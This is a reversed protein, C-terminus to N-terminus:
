VMEQSGDFRARSSDGCCDKGAFFLAAALFVCAAAVVKAQAPEVLCGSMCFIGCDTGSCGYWCVRYDAM